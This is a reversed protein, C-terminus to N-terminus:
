FVISQALTRLKEQATAETFVDSTGPQSIVFSTLKMGKFVYLGYDNRAPTSEGEPANSTLYYAIDGINDATTAGAFGKIAAEKSTDKTFRTVTTTFRNEMSNDATFGFICSQLEDGNFEKTYGRNVAEGVTKIAPTLTSQLTAQTLITCAGLDISMDPTVTEEQKSPDTDRSDDKAVESQNSDTVKDASGKILVLAGVVGGAIVIISAFSILIILAKKSMDETYGDQHAYALHTM